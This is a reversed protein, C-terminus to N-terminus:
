MRLGMFWKNLGKNLYHNVLAVYFRLTRSFSYLCREVWTAHTDDVQWVWAELNNDLCEWLYSCMSFFLSLFFLSLGFLSHESVLRKGLTWVPNGDEHASKLTLIPYKCTKNQNKGKMYGHRDSAYYFIYKVKIGM